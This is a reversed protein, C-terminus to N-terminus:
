EGKAEEATDEWMFEILTTDSLALYAQLAGTFSMDVFIGFAFLCSVVLCAPTSENLLGHWSRVLQTGHVVLVFLAGLISFLVLFCFHRHNALGICNNTWVCHHDMKLVCRDCASCHHTRPPKARDCKGCHRPTPQQLASAENVAVSYSPPLGPEMWM